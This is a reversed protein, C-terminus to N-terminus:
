SVVSHRVCVSECVDRPDVVPGRGDVTSYKRFPDLEQGHQVDGARIQVGDIFRTRVVIKRVAPTWSRSGVPRLIRLSSDVVSRRVEEPHVFGVEVRLGVDGRACGRGDPLRVHLREEPFGFEDRGGDRVSSSRHTDLPHLLEHAVASSAMDVSDRHVPVIGRGYTKGGEKERGRNSM